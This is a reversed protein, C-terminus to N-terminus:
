LRSVHTIIASAIDDLPLVKDVAGVKIAEKPM